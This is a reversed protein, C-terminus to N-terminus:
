SNYSDGSIFNCDAGIRNWQLFSALGDMPTFSMVAKHHLVVNHYPPQPATMGDTYYLANPAGFLYINEGDSFVFNKQYPYPLQQRLQVLATEMGEIINGTDQINMIIWRFFLDSDVVFPWGSASWHGNGYSDPPNDNIWTSDTGYDTLLNLLMNKDLTGNHAFSFTRESTEFLFPHPNPIGDAGSTGIRLHGIAIGANNNQNFIVAEASDFLATTQGTGDASRFVNSDQNMILQNYFSLAWGDPYDIGQDQFFDLSSSIMLNNDHNDTILNYGTNPIVGWM